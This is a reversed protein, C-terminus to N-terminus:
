FYGAIERWTDSRRGSLLASERECVCVRSPNNQWVVCDPEDKQFTGKKERERACASVCLSVHVRSTNDWVVLRIESKFREVVCRCMRLRQVDDVRAVNGRVETVESEGVKVWQCVGASTNLGINGM